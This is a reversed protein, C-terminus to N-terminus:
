STVSTLPGMIPDHMLERKRVQFALFSFGHAFVLLGCYLSHELTSQGSLILKVISNVIPLHSLFHPWRHVICLLFVCANLPLCDNLFLYETCFNSRYPFTMIILVVHILVLASNHICIWM